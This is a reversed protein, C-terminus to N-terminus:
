IYEVVDESVKKHKIFRFGRDEYRKKMGFPHRKPQYYISYHSCTDGDLYGQYRKKRVEESRLSKPFFTIYCTIRSIEMKKQTGENAHITKSNWLVFTNAPVILKVSKSYMEDDKEIQIFKKKTSGCDYEIHSKPVVVLGADEETVPLHNFLGQISYLEDKSHQDIHLWKGPKQSKDFFFSFGDFSSVLDDTQHLEKWIQLIKRNTRLKWMFRSQSLGSWYIMGKNWMMPSNDKTWTSTDDFDFRPSVKNWSKKFRQISKKLEKSTLVDKFVVYGEKDLHHKWGDEGVDFLRPKLSM